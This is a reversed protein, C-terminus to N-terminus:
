LIHYGHYRVHGNPIRGFTTAIPSATPAIIAALHDYQRGDGSTPSQPGKTDDRDEVVLLSTLDTVFNYKLSLRLARRKIAEKAELSEAIKKKELLQQIFLYASLRETSPKLGAIITDAMTDVTSEYTVPASSGIGTVQVTIMNEILSM